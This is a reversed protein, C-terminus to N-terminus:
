RVSLAQKRRARIISTQHDHIIERIGRRAMMCGCFFALGLLPHAQAVLFAGICILLFILSTYM